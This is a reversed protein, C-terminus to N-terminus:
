EKIMEVILFKDNQKWEECRKMKWPIIGYDKGFTISKKHGKAWYYPTQITFFSRHTPDSFAGMFNEDKIKLLPVRYWLRGGNGLIRHIENITAILDDPSLHELVNDCRVEDCNEWEKPYPHKTIDWVFDPKCKPSIDVRLYGETKIDGAGFDLKLM